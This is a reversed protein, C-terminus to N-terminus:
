ETYECSDGKNDGATCVKEVKCAGDPCDEDTFCDQADNVGGQCASRSALNAANVYITRGDRIAEYGDVTMEEIAPSPNIVNENYWTLINQNNPNKYIRIGVIDDAPEIGDIAASHIIPNIDLIQDNDLDANDFENFYEPLETNASFDYYYDSLYHLYITHEGPSLNDIEIEGEQVRSPDTAKVFIFGKKNDLAEGDVYVSFVMSRMLEYIQSETTAIMTLDDETIDEGILQLLDEKTKGADNVIYDIQQRTLDAFSDQGNSAFIQFVYKDQETVRFKYSFKARKDSLIGGGDVWETVDEGATGFIALWDQCSYYDSCFGDCDDDITCIAGDNSDLGGGQCIRDTEDYLRYGECEVGRLSLPNGVKQYSSIPFLYEKLLIDEGLIGLQSSAILPLILFVLFITIFLYKNKKLIIM